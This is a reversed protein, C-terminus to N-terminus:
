GWPHRLDSSRQTYSWDGSRGAEALDDDHVATGTPSTPTRGLRFGLLLDDGVEDGLELQHAQTSRCRRILWVAPM